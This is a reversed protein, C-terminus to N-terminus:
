YTGNAWLRVVMSNTTSVAGATRCLRFSIRNNVSDYGHQLTYVYAYNTMGHSVANTTAFPLDAYKTDSYWMNGAATSSSPTYSKECWAEWTGDSYKKWYWGDTTGSDIVWAKVLKSNIYLNGAIELTGDHAPFQNIGVSERLEDVFVIPIVKAVSKTYNTTGGLSDTLTIKVSWAYGNDLAITATVNDQLSGSVSPSLDGSKTAAYTIAIQNNGNISAFLADVTLDTNTSYNDQRQLTIIASPVSWALMNVTITKTGTLGRSDTVTFVASVDSGSNIVANGGSASTGSVTLNVTQGNVLVSCSVISASKKATLGTATYQVQSHNQVIDQNNGTLSVVSAKIDKYAAATIEPACVAPNVSFTGGTKTVTHGDTVCRIKYTGSASNPIASYLDDAIVSTDFAM